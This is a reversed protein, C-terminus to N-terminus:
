LIVKDIVGGGLCIDGDYLVCYQGEAVARQREDFDVRVNGDPLVVATGTQLPQRHRLRFRLRHESERLSRTIFNFGGTILGKSFLEDTEGQNVYLINNIIDKKIIFWAKDNGEGSKGGIGFGKRQGVTYYFVGNHRGVTKGDLTKIDGEKMPIYDALFNRFNREGIFCIGTSDKKAATVLDHRAAIERVQSKQLKELPFIANSIQEMTVQNLFYTQCKNEDAARTLYTLGDKRLTGCYHGTAIFDAGLKMAFDRFHGFKIERNCLVDPNPTRGAKYESLFHLFVNDFYQRSLDVTFYPIDIVACIRRVDEYDEYATCSGSADEEKWNRMFLGIVEYGQQKLLLAAVSSDVGGSLGVVVKKKM